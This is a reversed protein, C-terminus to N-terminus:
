PIQDCAISCNKLFFFGTMAQSNFIIWGAVASVNRLKEGGASVGGTGQVGDGQMEQLGNRM